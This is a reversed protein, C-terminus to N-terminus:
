YGDLFQSRVRSRKHDLMNKESDIIKISSQTSNLFVSSNTKNLLRKNRKSNSGTRKPVIFNIDVKHMMKPKDIQFSEWLYKNESFIQSPVKLSPDLKLDRINKYGKSISNSIIKFKETIQKFRKSSTKMQEFQSIIWCMEKLNEISFAVWEYLVIISQYIAKTESVDTKSVMQDLKFKDFEDKNLKLRITQSFEEYDVPNGGYSNLIERKLSRYEKKVLDGIDEKQKNNEQHVVRTKTSEQNVNQHLINHENIYSNFDDRHVFNFLERQLQEVSTKSAKELMVEDFRWILDRFSDIEENSIKINIRLDDIAPLIQAKLWSMESVTWIQSLRESIDKMDYVYKDDNVKQNM